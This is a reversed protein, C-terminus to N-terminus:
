QRKNGGRFSKQAGKKAASVINKFQGVAKQQRRKNAMKPNLPIYAYPEHQGPKLMDGKAKKSQFEKGTHKEKQQQRQKQSSNQNRKQVKNNKEDDSDEFDDRERERDRGKRKSKSSAGTDMMDEDEMVPADDAKYILVLFYFFFM